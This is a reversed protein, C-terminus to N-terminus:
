LNLKNRKETIESFLSNLKKASNAMSIAKSAITLNSLMIIIHCIFNINNDLREPAELDLILLFAQSLILILLTKIVIKNGPLHKGSTEVLRVNAKYLQYNGYCAYLLTTVLLLMVIESKSINMM